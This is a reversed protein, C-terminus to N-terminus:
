QNKIGALNQQGMFQNQQHIRQNQQQVSQALTQQVLANQSAFQDQVIQPQHVTPYQLNTLPQQVSQFHQAEPGVKKQKRDSKKKNKTQEFSLNAMPDALTQQTLPPQQGQYQVMQQLPQQFQANQNQDFFQQQQRIHQQNTMQQQMSQALPKQQVVSNQSAFQAQGIQPQHVTQLHQNTLPQNQQQVLQAFAQKTQELLLNAMPVAITQQMPPPQQGFNQYQVVSFQQPFQTQDFSQQWAQMPPQGLPVFSSPGAGGANAYGHPLMYPNTATGAGAMSGQGGGGASTGIANLSHHPQHRNTPEDRDFALVSFTAFTLWTFLFHFNYNLRIM